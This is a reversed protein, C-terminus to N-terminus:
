RGLYGMRRKIGGLADFEVRAALRFGPDVYHDNAVHSLQPPTAEALAVAQGQASDRGLVEDPLTGPM